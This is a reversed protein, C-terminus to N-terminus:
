ARDTVAPGASPCEWSCDLAHGHNANTGASGNMKDRPGGMAPHSAIKQKFFERVLARSLEWIVSSALLPHGNESNGSGTQGQTSYCRNVRREEGSQRGRQWYWRTQSTTSHRSGPRPSPWPGLLGCHRSVPLWSLPLFLCECLNGTKIVQFQEAV